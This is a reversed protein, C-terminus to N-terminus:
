KLAMRSRVVDLLMNREAPALARNHMVRHIIKETTAHQAWKKEPNGRQQKQIAIRNDISMPNRALRSRHRQALQQIESQMRTPM